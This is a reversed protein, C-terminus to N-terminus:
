EIEEKNIIKCDEKKNQIIYQYGSNEEFIGIVVWSDVIGDFTLDFEKGLNSEM